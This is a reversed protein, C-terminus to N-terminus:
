GDFFRAPPLEDLDLLKKANVLLASGPEVPGVFFLPAFEERGELIEDVDEPSIVFYVDPLDDRDSPM